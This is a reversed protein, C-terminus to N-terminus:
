RRKIKFKGFAIGLDVGSGVGALSLSVEGKTMVQASSSKGAGAHAEAVAYSGFVEDISSVESFTGIGDRIKGKGATLGGGTFKLKVEAKQGNDCTIVGDGKGTKYGISWTTLEFTMKCTTLKKATDGEDAGALGAGLALTLTLLTIWSRRM